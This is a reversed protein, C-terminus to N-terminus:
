QWRNSTQFKHVIKIGSKNTYNNLFILDSSDDHSKYDKSPKCYYSKHQGAESFILSFYHLVSM